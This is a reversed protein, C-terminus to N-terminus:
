IETVLTINALRTLSFKGLMNRAAEDTLVTNRKGRRKQRQEALMELVSNFATQNHEFLKIGINM